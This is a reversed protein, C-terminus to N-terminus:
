HKPHASDLFFCFCLVLKYSIIFTAIGAAEGACITALPLMYTVRFLTFPPTCPSFLALAAVQALRIPFFLVFYIVATAKGERREKRKKRGSPELRERQEDVRRGLM